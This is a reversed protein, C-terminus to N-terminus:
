PIQSKVLTPNASWGLLKWHWPTNYGVKCMAEQIIGLPLLKTAEIVTVKEGQYLVGPLHANQNESLWAEAFADVLNERTVSVPKTTAM